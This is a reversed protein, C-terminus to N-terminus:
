LISGTYKVSRKGYQTTNMDPVYIDWKSAQRTNYNHVSHLLIFFDDFPQVSQNNQCEYVFSILKLTHIDLLKLKYFLPTTHAYKDKLGPAVAEFFLKQEVWLNSFTSAYWLTQQSTCNFSFYPTSFNLHAQGM